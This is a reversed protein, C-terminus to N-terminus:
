LYEINFKNIKGTLEKTLVEINFDKIDMQKAICFNKIMARLQYIGRITLNNNLMKTVEKKSLRTLVEEQKSETDLVIKFYQELLLKGIYEVTQSKEIDEHKIEFELRYVDAKSNGKLKKVIKDIYPKNANILEKEKNYYRIYINSSRGGATYNVYEEAGDINYYKTYKHKFFVNRSEFKNVIEKSLLCDIAIDIRNLKFKSIYEIEFLVFLNNLHQQYIEAITHRNSLEYLKHNAVKVNYYEEDEGLTMSEKAIGILGWNITYDQINVSNAYLRSVMKCGRALGEYEKAFKKGVFSFSLYDISIQFKEM